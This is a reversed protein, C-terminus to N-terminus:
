RPLRLIRFLPLHLYATYTVYDTVTYHTRVAFATVNLRPLRLRVFWVVRLLAHYTVTYRVYSDTVAAARLYATTVYHTPPLRIRTAAAYCVCYFTPLYRYIPDSSCFTPLAATPLRPLRPLLTRPVFPFPLSYGCCRLYGSDLVYRLVYPVCVAVVTAVFAHACYRTRYGAHFFPLRLLLATPLRPDTSRSRRLPLFTRVLRLLGSRPLAPTPANTHYRPLRTVHPLGVCAATVSPARLRVNTCCTVRPSSATVVCCFPCFGYRPLGCRRTHVPYLVCTVFTDVAFPLVRYVAVFLVCTTIFSCRTCTRYLHTVTYRLIRYPATHPPLGTRCPLLLYLILRLLCRVPYVAVFPTTFPLPLASFAIV